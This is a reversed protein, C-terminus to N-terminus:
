PTVEYPAFLKVPRGIATDLAISAEAHEVRLEIERSRMALLYQTGAAVDLLSLDGGIFADHISKWAKLAAPLTAQQLSVWEAHISAIRAHWRYVAARAAAATAMGALRIQRAEAAARAVEGQNRDYAPLPISIGVLWGHERLGDVSVYGAEVTVDPVWSRDAARGRAKAEQVRRDFLLDTPSADLATLLQDLDEPPGPAPLLGALDTVEGPSGGWHLPLITLTEDLAGRERGLAAEARHVVAAARYLSADGLDGALVRRRALDEDWRTIALALSALEIRYKHDLVEVWALALAAAVDIEALRLDAEAVRVGLQAADQASRRKGRTLLTQAIAVRAVNPKYLPGRIGGEELSVALEPNPYRSAVIVNAAAVALSAHVARARPSTETLRPCVDDWRTADPAVRIKVAEDIVGPAPGPLPDAALAAPVLILIACTTLRHLM